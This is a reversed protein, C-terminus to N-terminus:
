NFTYGVVLGLFTVRTELDEYDVSLARAGMIWENGTSTSRNLLAATEWTFDSGGTGINARLDISWRDSLQRRTIVGAFGDVWSDEFQVTGLNPFDLDLELDWYRIGGHLAVWGNEQQWRWTLGNEIIAGKIGVEITDADRLTGDSTLKLVDLNGIYSLRDNEAEVRMFFAYDLAELVGEFPIAVGPATPGTATDGRVGALFAYPTLHIDWEDASAPFIAGALLLAALFRVM